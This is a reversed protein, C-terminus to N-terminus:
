FAFKGDRKNTCQKSVDRYIARTPGAIYVLSAKFKCLVGQRQRRLAPISLILWQVPSRGKQKNAKLTCRATYGLSAKLKLDQTDAETSIVPVHWWM